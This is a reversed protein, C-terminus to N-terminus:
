TSRTSYGVHRGYGVQTALLERAKELLKGDFGNLVSIRKRMEDSASIRISPNAHVLLGNLGPLGLRQFALMSEALMDLIAIATFARLHKMADLLHAHTLAEFPATKKMSPDQMLSSTHAEMRQGVAAGLSSSSRARAWSQPDDVYRHHQQVKPLLTSVM